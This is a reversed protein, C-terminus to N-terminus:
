AVASFTPNAPDLVELRFEGESLDIRARGGAQLRGDLIADALLNQVRRQLVRKLPRAGFELDSGERVLECRAADGVELGLGKEALQAEVRSLQVDVIRRLAKGDLASYCLVEDLRNLLEPRFHSRLDAEDRLNSTMIVLTQTFDVVHGQGDTLRGDDLLQLLVNAVDPHAKEIEDFLVVSHPKRRVAETLSGGEEYGVYGPPAGLM